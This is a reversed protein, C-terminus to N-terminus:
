SLELWGWEILYTEFEELLEKAFTQEELKLRKLWNETLPTVFANLPTPRKLFDCLYADLHELLAEYRARRWPKLRTTRRLFDDTAYELLPEQGVVHPAQSTYIRTHSQM